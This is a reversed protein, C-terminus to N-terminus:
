DNLVPELILRDLLPHSDNFYKFCLKKGITETQGAKLYYINSDLEKTEKLKLWPYRQTSLINFIIKEVLINGYEEGNRFNLYDM